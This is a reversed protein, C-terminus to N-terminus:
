TGRFNYGEFKLQALLLIQLVYRFLFNLKSLKLRVVKLNTTHGKKLKKRFTKNIDDDKHVDHEIKRLVDRSTINDLLVLEDVSSYM